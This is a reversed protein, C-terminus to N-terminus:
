KAEKMFEGLGHAYKELDNDYIFPSHTVALFGSCLDSQSIDDLFKRQWPVSLSLEPEDIMVFFNVDESLYLHSFLSVIQKEGSSLQSLSIDGPYKSSAVEFSFSSSTYELRKDKKNMYSNCVDCFSTVGQEEKELEQQFSLLKSFYHCIVKQHEDLEADNKVNQITDVLHEKSSKALIRSDIRELINKVTDDEVAKIEEVNVTDYKKDVVDGLYALTLSNLKNRTFEKLYELKREIAEKVDNMGFEVLETYVQKDGSRFQGMRRKRHRRLEDTDFDTFIYSLEEEIRRYTPLYLIQNNAIHSKLEHLKEELSSNIGMSEFLDQQSHFEHLVFHFPIGYKDCLIELDSFDVKGDRDIMMKVRDRVPAPLSKLLRKDTFATQKSLDSETFSISKSDLTISVSDFSYKTLGRWQGSLFLFLIRLVTTKGAGNEGVLILRNEEFKLTCDQRGYLKKIEFQTLKM